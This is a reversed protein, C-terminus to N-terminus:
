RRHVALLTVDDDQGDLVLQSALRHLARERLRPQPGLLDVLRAIGSDIDQDRTEVLGDTYLLYADGPALRHTVSRRAYSGVGLPPSTPLDIVTIGGDAHLLLPPLHGAGVFTVTDSAADALALVVTALGGLGYTEYMGTLKTLAAVPDPDLALYARLSSRLQAMAAAAGVGRGMVDGVVTVLRGDRLQVADYFDGGVETRGAPRYHVALQWAEPEPLSAPLLAHQLRVSADLTQSYLQSNDIAVAARRALDEAFALDEADYRREPESSILVLAGLARDRVQLPVIMVSVVRLQRILALHDPDRAGAVLVEEPVYGYLQSQGTRIVASVGTEADMPTPYRRRMEVALEIMAPDRHQTVVPRLQGNELLEVGVWDALERLALKAVNNLTTRYDLSSALEVSAEGLFALKRARDAAAASAEVRALAQAATDALTQLYQRDADSFARRGGFSLSVGGLTRGGAVLPAAILSREGPLIPMAPWRSRFEGSGSVSLLRGTSVAEGVPTDGDVAFSAFRDRSHAAGGRLALLHLLGDDRLLAVSATDAGFADAAEDVLLHAVTVADDAGALQATVRGLGALLAASQPPDSEPKDDVITVAGVVEGAHWQPAHTVRVHRTSGDALRLEVPGSWVQGSVVTTLLDLEGAREPAPGFLDVLPRDVLTDCEVGLLDGAATNVYRVRLTLDTALVPVPVADFASFQPVEDGHRGTTAEETM